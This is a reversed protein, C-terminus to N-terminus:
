QIRDIMAKWSIVVAVRDKELFYESPRDWPLVTLGHPLTRDLEIIHLNGDHNVLGDDLRDTADTSHNEEEPQHPQSERHWGFVFEIPTGDPGTRKESDSEPDDQEPDSEAHEGRM